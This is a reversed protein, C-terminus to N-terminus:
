VELDQQARNGVHDTLAPESALALPARPLSLDGSHVLSLPQLPFETPAAGLSRHRLSSGHAIALVVAPVGVIWLVLIAAIMVIDIGGNAGASDYEKGDAEAPDIVGSRALELM